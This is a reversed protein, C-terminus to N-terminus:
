GRGGYTEREIEIKGKRIWKLDLDETEEKIL